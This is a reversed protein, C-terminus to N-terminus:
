SKTTYVYVKNGSSAAATSVTDTTLSLTGVATAQGWIIVNDDQKVGVWDDVAVGAALPDDNLSFFQAGSAADASLTSEHVINDTIHDTSLAYSQTNPQLFM